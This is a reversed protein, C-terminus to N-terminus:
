TTQDKRQPSNQLTQDPFFFVFPLHRAFLLVQGTPLMYWVHILASACLAVVGLVVNNAPLAWHEPGSGFVSAVALGVDWLITFGASLTEADYGWLTFPLELYFIAFSASIAEFLMLLYPISNTSGLVLTNWQDYAMMVTERVLANACAWHLASQRHPATRDPM